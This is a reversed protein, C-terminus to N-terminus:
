ILFESGWDCSGWKLHKTPIFPQYSGYQIACIPTDISRSHETQYCQELGVELGM